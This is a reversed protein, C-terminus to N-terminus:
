VVVKPTVVLTVAKNIVGTRTQWNTYNILRATNNSPINTRQRILIENQNQINNVCQGMTILQFDLSVELHELIEMKMGLGSLLLFLSDRCNYLVIYCM